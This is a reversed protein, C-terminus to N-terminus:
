DGKGDIKKRISEQCDAKLDKSIIGFPDSRGAYWSGMFHDFWYHYGKYVKTCM